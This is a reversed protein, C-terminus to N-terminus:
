RPRAPQQPQQTNAVAPANRAAAPPEVIERFIPKHTYQVCVIQDVGPQGNSIARSCYFEDKTVNSHIQQKFKQDERHQLILLYGMSVVMAACLIVYVSLRVKVLLPLENETEKVM